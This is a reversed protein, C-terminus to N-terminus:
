SAPLENEKPKKMEYSVYLGAAISSLALGLFIEYVGWFSGIRTLPIAIVLTKILTIRFL